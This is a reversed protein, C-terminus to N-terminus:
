PLNRRRLLLALPVAAALTLHPMLALLDRQSRREVPGTGLVERAQQVARGPEEEGTVSGQLRAAVAQLDGVSSPDARYQSERESAVYIGEDSRWTHVFVTRIGADALVSALSGTVPRTEGDTLVVLLRKTAARSFFGHEAIAALAGLDTVRGIQSRGPPPQEIGLSRELTARFPRPDATPFLHPLTRDTLSVIGSPVDALQTRIRLALSRARAFRTPSDPGAAAAMSRSTDLVFFIEADSRTEVTSGRDLVPQSAALGLLIPVALLAVVAAQDRSAEALGLTRRVRQARRERRVFAGIPIAALLAVLAAAPTLFSLSPVDTAAGRRARV